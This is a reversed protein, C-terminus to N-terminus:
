VPGAEERVGLPLLAAELLKELCEDGNGGDRGIGGTGGVDLAAALQRHLGNAREAPPRVDVPRPVAVGDDVADELLRRGQGRDGHVVV